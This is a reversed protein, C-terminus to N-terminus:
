FLLRPTQARKIIEKYKKKLEPTIMEPIIKNSKSMNDSGWLPQFNSHHNLFILEDRTKGLDLPVIHDIHWKGHNKWNMGKKFRKEIHNKCEEVTCGLIETTKTGNKSHGKGLLGNRILSRINQSFKFLPDKKLRETVYRRDSKRKGEKYEQTQMYPRRWKELACQKCYSKKSYFVRASYDNPFDDLSKISDCLRCRRQEQKQLLHLEKIYKKEKLYDKKQEPTKIEFNRKAQKKTLNERNVSHYKKWSVGICSRCRYQGQSFDSAPKFEKCGRCTDGKNLELFADRKDRRLVYQRRRKEPPIKAASKKKAKADAIKRCKDGCYCARAYSYGRGGPTFKKSCIKCTKM